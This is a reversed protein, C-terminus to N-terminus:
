FIIVFLSEREKESQQEERGLFEELSDKVQKPTEVM